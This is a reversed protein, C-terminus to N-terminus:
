RVEAGEFLVDRSYANKGGDFAPHRNEFLNGIAKFFVGRMLYKPKDPVIDVDYHIIESPFKKGFIIPLMNALVKIPTGWTGSEKRPPIKYDLM